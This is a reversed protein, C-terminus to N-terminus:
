QNSIFDFEGENVGLAMEFLLQFTKLLSEKKEMGWDFLGSDLLFLSGTMLIQVSEEPARAHFIGESNGQIIVKAIIPSIIKITQINLDEQLERNEPLHIIEMTSSNAKKEKEPGRLMLKLKEAASINDMNAIADFYEALSSLTQNVIASLLEKKSKFYYYFTGKAIEAKSIITEVSTKSYGESAFLKEAVEIIEKKREDPKKIIRKM